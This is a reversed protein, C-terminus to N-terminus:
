AVPFVVARGALTPKATVIFEAHYADDRATQEDEVENPLYQRQQGITYSTLRGLGGAGVSAREGPLLRGM